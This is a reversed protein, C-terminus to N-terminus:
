EFLASYANEDESFELDLDNIEVPEASETTNDQILNTVLAQGSPVDPGDDDDNDSCAALALALFLVIAGRM